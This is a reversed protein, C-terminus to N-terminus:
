CLYICYFKVIAFESIAFQNKKMKGIKYLVVSICYFQATAFKAITFM